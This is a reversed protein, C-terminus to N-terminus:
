ADFHTLSCLSPLIVSHMLPFDRVTNGMGLMNKNENEENGVDPLLNNM